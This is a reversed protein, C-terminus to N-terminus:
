PAAHLTREPTPIPIPPPGQREWSGDPLRRVKWAQNPKPLQYLEFSLIRFAFSLYEFEELVPCIPDFHQKLVREPFSPTGEYNVVCLTVWKLKPLVVAAARPPNHLPQHIRPCLKLTLHELHRLSTALSPLLSFFNYPVFLKLNTIRACTKSLTDLRWWPGGEWDRYVEVYTTVPRGPILSAALRHECALNRLAPLDSDHFFMHSPCYGFFIHLTTISTYGKFTDLVPQSPGDGPYHITVTSLKPLEILGGQVVSSVIGAGSVDVLLDEVTAALITLLHRATQTAIHALNLAIVRSSPMPNTSPHFQGSHVVLTRLTPLGFIIAQQAENIDANSLHLLRINPIISLVSIVTHLRRTEAWTQKVGSWHVETASRIHLREKRKWGMYRVNRNGLKVVIPPPNLHVISFLRRCSNALSHQDEPSLLGCIAVWLEVPFRIQRNVL